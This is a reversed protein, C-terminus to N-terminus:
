IIRGSEERGNRTGMELANATSINGSDGDIVSPRWENLTSPNTFRTAVSSHHTSPPKIPKLPWQGAFTMDSNQTTVDNQHREGEFARVIEADATLVYSMAICVVATLTFLLERDLVDTLLLNFVALATVGSAILVRVFNWWMVATFLTRHNQINFSSSKVVLSSYNTRNARRLIQTLRVTIYIDILVDTAIFGVVVTSNHHAMHECTLETGDPNRKLQPDMTVIHAIQFGTRVMFLVISLCKDWWTDAIKGLRLLLFAALTERYFFSAVGEVFGIVECQVHTFAVPAIMFTVFVAILRVAGSLNFGIKLFNSINARRRVCAIASVTANHVFVMSTIAIMFTVYPVRQFPELM